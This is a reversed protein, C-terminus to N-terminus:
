RSRYNVAVARNSRNPLQDVIAHPLIIGISIAKPFGAVADGGQDRVAERAIALDAVGLFDCSSSTVLSAIRDYTDM